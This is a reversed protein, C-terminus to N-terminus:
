RVRELKEKKKWANNKLIYTILILPFMIYCDLGHVETMAYLSWLIICYSIRKEKLRSLKWLCITLIMGWLIGQNMALFSYVNDFTFATLGFTRDWEINYNITQGLLTFGYNEYAYAGLRIRNTLLKNIMNVIRNNDLYHVVLFNTVVFLSPFLIGSILHIMKDFVPKKMNLVTLLLLTVVIEILFTKTRALLFTLCSIVCLVVVHKMHIRDFNLYTWMLILNYIIISLKNKNGYGLHFVLQGQYYYYIEGKGFMWLIFSWSIQILFFLFLYSFMFHLIREIDSDRIALCTLVTILLASNDIKVSSYLAALVLVGSFILRKIQYDQKWISFMFIMCVAITLVNDITNSYPLNVSSLLITKAIMLVIGLELGSKIKLSDIKFEGSVTM